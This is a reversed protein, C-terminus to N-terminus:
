ARVRGADENLLTLAKSKFSTGELLELRKNTHYEGTLNASSMVDAHLREMDRESMQAEPKPFPRPMSLQLGKEDESEEDSTSSESGSDSEDNFEDDSEEL